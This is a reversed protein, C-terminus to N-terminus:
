AQIRYLIDDQPQIDVTISKVTVYKKKIYIYLNIANM